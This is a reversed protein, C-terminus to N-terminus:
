QMQRLFKVRGKLHSVAQAGGQRATEYIRRSRSVLELDIGGNRLQDATRDLGFFFMDPPLTAGRILVM